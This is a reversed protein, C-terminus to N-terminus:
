KCKVRVIYQYVDFLSKKDNGVLELLKNYFEKHADTSEGPEIIEKIGDVIYGCREFMRYIENKTFFRLHTYDLIGADKYTFNGQLLDYIINANMLNPISTIIFGDKKLSKSIKKLVDEPDRLHELVDAFIVYDFKMDPPLELKEIDGSVIEIKSNGLKAVKDVIEVGRVDSKPYRFKISTLTDGLGCGVELVNIPANRDAVIMEIIDYRAYTYYDPSFSWKQIFKKQNDYILNRYKSPDKEFSKSGYHYIYSNHCLINCYGAQMIRMGYDNDEYNGPSFREDLEGIEDYVNRKILMAFMVLMSKLEYSNERPINNTLGYELYDSIEKGSCYTIQRNAAYNTVAGVAGVLSDEYLGMRLMYLSNSLLLTDSNLLFIDNESNARRIGQNCGAPFGTNETNRILIVDDQEELWEASGDTSANDVVVIEYCEPMCSNRISGICLKTYDITNYSLIIISVKRVVTGYNETFTHIIDNIHEADNQKSQKMSYYLANEYSLYAKAPNIGAYYNGLMLYLEYNQPDMKLGGCIISYMTEWQEFHELITAGLIHDEVSMAHQSNKELFAKLADNWNDQQILTYIDNM